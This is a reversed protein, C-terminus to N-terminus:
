VDEFITEDYEINNDQFFEKMVSVWDTGSPRIALNFWSGNDLEINVSEGTPHVKKVANIAKL